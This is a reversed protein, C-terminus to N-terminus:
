LLPVWSLAGGDVPTTVLMVFRGGRRKCRIDARLDTGKRAASHLRSPLAPASVVPAGSDGAFGTQVRKKKHSPLDTIRPLSIVRDTRVVVKPLSPGSRQSVACHEKGAWFRLFGRGLRLSNLTTLTLQGRQFYSVLIDSYSPFNSPATEGGPGLTFGRLQSRRGAPRAHPSPFLLSIPGHLPFSADCFHAGARKTPAWGGCFM